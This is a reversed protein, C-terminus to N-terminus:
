FDQISSYSEDNHNVGTGGASKNQINVCTVGTYMVTGNGGPGTLCLLGIM